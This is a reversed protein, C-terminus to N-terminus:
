WEVIPDRLRLPLPLPALVDWKRAWNQELHM